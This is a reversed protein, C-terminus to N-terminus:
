IKSGDLKMMEKKVEETFGYSIRGVINNAYGFLIRNHVNHHKKKIRGKKTQRHKMDIFRNTLPLDYILSTDKVNFVRGRNTKNSFGSMNKNIEADIDASEESLVKRIFRGELVRGLDTKRQIM